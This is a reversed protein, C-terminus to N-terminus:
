ASEPVGQECTSAKVRQWVALDEPYDVDSLTPLLAIALGLQQGITLTQQLVAATSWAINQFLEPWFQRVGILYYGGDVAPGLVLDHHALLAFAQHLLDADLEPCDTGIIVIRDGETDCAAQLSRVLRDGLDGTGQPVYTWSLGLWAQMKAETGGAFRIEVRSTASKMQGESQRELWQQVQSITHEAMQRYLTTAGEAGLAPILRTKATGPEPYRAFLILHDLITQM